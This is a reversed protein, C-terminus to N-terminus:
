SSSESRVVGPRGELRFINLSAPAPLQTFAWQLSPLQGRISNFPRPRRRFGLNLARLTARVDQTTYDRSCADNMPHPPSLTWIGAHVYCAEELGFTVPGGQDNLAQPSRFTRAQPNVWVQSPM